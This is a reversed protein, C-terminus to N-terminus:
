WLLRVAGFSLKDPGPAKGISQAFLAREVAHETVSQHAEGAPLLEFYQDHENSPFSERRLTEEKETITNAQRGDRDTLAEGTAGARPNAYKAARWVEAGRMNKLYDKWMRDKASLISKQLEAKAHTTAASRRRRTKERGLQSRREKIEGNWWRKSGSCIRIKKATADLVKGLAEQCWEAESEVDDGTSEVGLYARGRARERWLKEAQVKDEQSMAALNWGVVQTGGAEGQKEM